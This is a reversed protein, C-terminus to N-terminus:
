APCCVVAAGEFVGRLRPSCRPHPPRCSGSPQQALNSLHLCHFCALLGLVLPWGGSRLMAPVSIADTSAIMASFLAGHVWAWGKSRFDMVYLILVTLLLASLFVLGFALMVIPIWLQLVCYPPPPTDAPHSLSRIALTDTCRQCPWEAHLCRM